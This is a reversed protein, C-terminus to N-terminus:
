VLLVLNRLVRYVKCKSFVMAFISMFVMMFFLQFANEIKSKYVYVRKLINEENIMQPNNKYRDQIAKMKPQLSQMMRMSKQQQVNVGWLAGRVIFTVVIIAWGYSGVIKAIYTLIDITLKVFDM